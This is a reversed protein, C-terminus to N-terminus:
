TDLRAVPALRRRAQAATAGGLGVGAVRTGPLVRADYASRLALVAVGLVAVLALLGALM